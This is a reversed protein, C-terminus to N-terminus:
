AAHDLRQDAPKAEIFQVGLMQERSDTPLVRVVQAHLAANGVLIHQGSWAIVLDLEDTTAIPRSSLVRVLAGGSSIDCLLGALYRQTPRHFVKCLKSANRREFQRRDHSTTAMNQSDVM